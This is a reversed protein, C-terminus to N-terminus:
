RLGKAYPQAELDDRNAHHPRWPRTELDPGASWLEFAHTFAPAAHTRRDSALAETPLRSITALGFRGPDIQADLVDSSTSIAEAPVYGAGTQVVPHLYGLAQGYRDLIAEDRQEAATLADALYDAAFGKGWAAGVLVGAKGAIGANGAMLAMRGREAGLRNLSGAAMQQYSWNGGNDITKIDADDLTYANASGKVGGSWVSTVAYAADVKDLDAKLDAMESSTLAHALHWALRNGQGTAKAIAYADEAPQSSPAAYAQYPYTGTESRFLGLGAGVKGLLSHTNARDASRRALGLIPMALGMLLALIALVVLLEILTFARPANM